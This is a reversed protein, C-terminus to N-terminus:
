PELGIRHVLSAFRPDSRIPDLKPDTRINLSLNPDRREWVRDLIQFASDAEGLAIRILAVDYQESPAASAIM